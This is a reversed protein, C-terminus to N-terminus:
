KKALQDGPLEVYRVTEIDVKEYNGEQALAYERFNELSNSQSLKVELADNEAALAAVQKTCSKAFSSAHIYANFQLVVGCLLCVTAVFSAFWFMKFNKNLRARM